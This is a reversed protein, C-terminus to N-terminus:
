NELHTMYQDNKSTSSQRYSTTSLQILQHQIEIRKLVESRLASYEALLVPVDSTESAQAAM